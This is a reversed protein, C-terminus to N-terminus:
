IVINYKDSTDEKIPEVYISEQTSINPSIDLHEISESTSPPTWTYEQVKLENNCKTIILFGKFGMSEDMYNCEIYIKDFLKALNELFKIPPSWATSFDLDLTEEDSRDISVDGEGLDWKTGWNDINWQYWNEEEISPRPVFHNFSLKHEEIQDIVDETSIIKVNNTVWNPM